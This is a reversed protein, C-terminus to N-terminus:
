LHLEFKNESQCTPCCANIQVTESYKVDVLELMGNICHFCPITRIECMLFELLEERSFDM